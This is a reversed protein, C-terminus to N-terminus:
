PQFWVSCDLCSSVSRLLVLWTQHLFIHLILRPQECQGFLVPLALFVVLAPATRSDSRRSCYFCFDRATFITPHSPPPNIKRFNNYGKVTIDVVFLLLNRTEYSYLKSSVKWGPPAWDHFLFGFGRSGEVVYSSSDL